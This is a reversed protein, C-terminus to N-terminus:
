LGAEKLLPELDEVLYRATTELEVIFTKAALAVTVSKVFAPVMEIGYKECLSAFVYMAADIQGLDILTDLAKPFARVMKADSEADGIAYVLLNAYAFAERALSPKKGERIEALIKKAKEVEIIEEVKM